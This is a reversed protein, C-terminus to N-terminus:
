KVLVRDLEYAGSIEDLMIVATHGPYTGSAGLMYAQSITKTSVKSGDDKTVIVETGIEFNKNWEYVLDVQTEQKKRSM